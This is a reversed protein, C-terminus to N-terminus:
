LYFNHVQRADSEYISPELEDFRADIARAAEAVITAMDRFSIDPFVTISSGKSDDNKKKNNNNKRRNGGGGRRRSSQRKERSLLIQQEEHEELNKQGAEQILDLKKRVLIQELTPEKFFNNEYNSIYGSVVIVVGLLFWILPGSVAMNVKKQKVEEKEESDAQM